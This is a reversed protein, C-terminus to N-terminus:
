ARTHNNTNTIPLFFSTVHINSVNVSEDNSNDDEEDSTAIYIISYLNILVATVVIALMPKIM